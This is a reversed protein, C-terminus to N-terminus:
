SQGLPHQHLRVLTQEPLKDPIKSPFAHTGNLAEFFTQFLPARKGGEHEDGYGVLAIAGKIAEAAELTM